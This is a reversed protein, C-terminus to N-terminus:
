SSRSSLETQGQCIGIMFPRNIRSNSGRASNTRSPDSYHGTEKMGDGLVAVDELHITENKKKNLADYQARHADFRAKGTPMSVNDTHPLCLFVELHIISYMTCGAREVSKKLADMTHTVHKEFSDTVLVHDDRSYGDHSGTGLSTISAMTHTTAALGIELLALQHHATTQPPQQAFLVRAGTVAAVSAAFKKFYSRRSNAQMSDEM